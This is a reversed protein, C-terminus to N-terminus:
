DGLETLHKSLKDLESALLDLRDFLNPEGKPNPKSTQSFALHSNLTGSLSM